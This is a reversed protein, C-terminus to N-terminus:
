CNREGDTRHDCSDSRLPFAATRYHEKLTILETLIKLPFGQRNGRTDVLLQDLYRDLQIPQRWLKTLDNVIRPFRVALRYPRVPESLASLFAVSEASLRLDDANEARRFTTPAEGPGEPDTEPSV